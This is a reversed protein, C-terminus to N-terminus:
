HVAVETVPKPDAKRAPWVLSVLWAVGLTVLVGILTFWPWFVEGGFTRKWWGQTLPIKAPWYIFCMVLVSSIMGAM